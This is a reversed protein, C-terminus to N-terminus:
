LEEGADVLYPMHRILGPSLLFGVAAGALLGGLHAANDVGPVIFGFLLNLGGMVAVLLVFGGGLGEPLAKRLALVLGAGM